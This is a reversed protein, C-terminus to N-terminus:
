DKDFAELLAQVVPRKLQGRSAKEEVMDLVSQGAAELIALEQIVILDEVSGLDKFDIFAGGTAKAIGRYQREADVNAGCRVMYCTINARKLAALIKEQTMRLPCLDISDHSWAAEKTLSPNFGHSAHDGIHLLVRRPANWPLRAVYHLAAGLAEVETENGETFGETHLFASLEHLRDLGVLEGDTALGKGFLQLPVNCDHDRYFGGGSRLDVAPNLSLAELSERAYERVADIVGLMSGTADILFAYDVRARLIRELVQASPRLSLLKSNGLPDNDLLTALDDM